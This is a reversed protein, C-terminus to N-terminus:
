TGRPIGMGRTYGCGPWGSCGVFEGFRGVKVVLRAGCDPCFDTVNDPTVPSHQAERFSVLWKAWDEDSVAPDPRCALRLRSLTQTVQEIPIM